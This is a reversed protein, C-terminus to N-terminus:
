CGAAYINLLSRVRDLLTKRLYALIWCSFSLSQHCPSVGGSALLLRRVYEFLFCPIKPNNETTKTETVGIVNFRYQLEDLLHVQFDDLSRKLSRVINQLFSFTSSTAYSIPIALEYWSLMKFYIKWLFKHRRLQSCYYKCLNKYFTPFELIFIISFM